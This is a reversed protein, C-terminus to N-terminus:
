EYPKFKVQAIASTFDRVTKLLLPYIAPTFVILGPVPEHEIIVKFRDTFIVILEELEEFSLPSGGLSEMRAMEMFHKEEIKKVWASVLAEQEPSVLGVPISM